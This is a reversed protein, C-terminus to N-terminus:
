TSSSTSTAPVRERPKSEGSGPPVVWRRATPPCCTMKPADDVHRHRQRVFRLMPKGAPGLAVREIQAPQKTKSRTVLGSDRATMSLDGTSSSLGANWALGAGTLEEGSRDSGPARQGHWFPGAMDVRAMSGDVRLNALDRTRM